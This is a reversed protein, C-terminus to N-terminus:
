CLVSLSFFCLARGYNLTDDQESHRSDTDLLETRVKSYDFSLVATFLGLVREIHILILILHIDYLLCVCVCEFHWIWQISRATNVLCILM